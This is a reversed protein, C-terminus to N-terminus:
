RRRAHRTSWRSYAARSTRSPTLATEPVRVGAVGPREASPHDNCGGGHPGDADRENMLDATVISAAAGSEVCDRGRVIAENVARGGQAGTGVRPTGIESQSGAAPVGLPITLTRGDLTILPDPAPAADIRLSGSEFRFGQPLRDELVAPIGASGTASSLNLVYQIFEGLGVSARSARKTLAIAASPATSDLPVDVAAIAGLPVPFDNGRSGPGLAYPAGPLVQLVPDPVASPFSHTAPPAIQLRYLGPVVLPFRYEGPAFTYVTGGSDTVSGGTIVSSPYTSVGDDGLVVAPLGTASDILTVQVGSVPAATQSDFAIGLPDVLGSSSSLDSTDASDVYSALIRDDPVVSLRCDGAAAPPSGSMLYAIFVGTNPPKSALLV